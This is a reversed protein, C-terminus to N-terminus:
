AVPVTTRQQLASPYRDRRDGLQADELASQYMNAWTMIRADDELFPSAEVLAGYLYLGRANSLIWNTDADASLAAFKRYYLLKAVKDSDPIPGFTMYENEITYAEPTGAQSAGWVAHFQDPELYKLPGKPDGDLYVRRVSLFRTPLPVQGPEILRWVSGDYYFRYTLDAVLDDAALGVSGDDKRIATAATSNYALTVTSTNNSAMKGKVTLGKTLTTPGGTTTLTIANATGGATGGDRTQYAFLEAQVEMARIRLDKAIRDEALTIFEPIRATLDDRELWNAIATVLESRQTIAM